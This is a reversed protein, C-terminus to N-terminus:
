RPSGFLLIPPNSEDTFVEPYTARDQDMRRNMERAIEATDIARVWNGDPDEGPFPIKFGGSDYQRHEDFYDSLAEERGQERGEDRSDFMTKRWQKYHAIEIKEIARKAMSRNIITAGLAGVAFTLLGYALVDNKSESDLANYRETPGSPVAKIPQAALLAAESPVAKIPQAALLAAQRRSPKTKVSSSREAGFSSSFHKDYWDGM